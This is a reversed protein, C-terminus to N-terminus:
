DTCAYETEILVEYVCSTPEEVNGVSYKTAPNCIFVPVWTRAPNGCDTDGNNYRFKWMAGDMSEYSPQITSNWRGIIYCATPDSPQTQGTMVRQGRCTVNNRCISYHYHHGVVDLIDLTINALPTLDLVVKQDNDPDIATWRCQSSVRLVLLCIVISLSLM